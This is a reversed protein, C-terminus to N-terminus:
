SLVHPSFLWLPLRAQGHCTAAKEDAGRRPPTVCGHSSARPRASSWTWSRGIGASLRRPATAAGSSSTAGRRRRQPNPPPTRRQAHLSAPPRSSRGSPAGPCFGAVGHGADPGQPWVQLWQCGPAVSRLRVAQLPRTAAVHGPPVGHETAVLTSPTAKASDVAQSLPGVDFVRLSKTMCRVELECSCAQLGSVPGPPVRCTDTRLARARLPLEPPPLSELRGRPQDCRVLDRRIRDGADHHPYISFRYMWQASQASVPDTSDQKAGWRVVQAISPGREHEGAECWVKWTMSSLDPRTGGTTSVADVRRSVPVCVDSPCQQLRWLRLMTLHKGDALPSPTSPGPSERSPTM